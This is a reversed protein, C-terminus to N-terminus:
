IEHAVCTINSVSATGGTVDAVQLDYWVATALALGTAAGTVSFGQKQTAVAVAVSRLASIATGSATAANAPATGTGYVLKYQVGDNITSNTLDGSVTFVVRGTSTPTITAPAVAAGLGNMKLTSTANGTQDAPQATTLAFGVGATGNLQFATTANVTVGTLTASSTLPGKVDVLTLAAGASDADIRVTKTSPRYIFLDQSSLGSSGWSIGNTAAFVLRGNAIDFEFNETNGTSAIGIRNTGPSYFGANSGFNLTTASVLGIPLILPVASTVATASVDFRLTGSAGLTANTYIGLDNAGVRAIYVDQNARDLIISDTSVNAVPLTGSITLPFVVGTTLTMIAAM